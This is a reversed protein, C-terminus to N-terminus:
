YYKDFDTDKKCLKNYLNQPMMFLGIWIKYLYVNNYICLM